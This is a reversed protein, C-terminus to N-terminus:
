RRHGCDRDWMRDDRGNVFDTVSTELRLDVGNLVLHQHLPAAMEPDVPGMVQSTAEVLTVGVDRRRLAEAMELGIYGGGVVLSHAPRDTDILRMIADMDSMSRLTLVRPDDSGPIAPRVPEAGPSLILKDYTIKQESGDALSRVTVERRARDIAFAETKTRVDIRLNAYLTEPTQVLLRSRDSITGAIHYPLGCNAFSVYEGREILIIEADESLRRARAAASAGGAVGGIVVIRTNASM